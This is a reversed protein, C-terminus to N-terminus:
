NELKIKVNKLKKFIERLALIQHENLAKKSILNTSGKALHIIFWNKLEEVKYLSNLKIKSNFNSGIIRLNDNDFQYENAGNLVNYNKFNKKASFYIGLPMMFVIVLGLVPQYSPYGEIIDYIEFFDIISITIFIIGLLLTLISGIKKYFLIYNLKLYDSFEIKNHFNM